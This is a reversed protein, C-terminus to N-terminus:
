SVAAFLHCGWPRRTSHIIPMSSGLCTSQRNSLIKLRLAASLQGWTRKPEGQMGMPRAQPSVLLPASLLAFPRGSGHFLSHVEILCSTRMYLIGYLRFVHKVLLDGTESSLLKPLPVFHVSQPFAILSWPRSPVLLRQLLRAPSQHDAKGQAFVLYAVMYGRVDTDMGPWWFHLRLLTLTRFSGPHCTM